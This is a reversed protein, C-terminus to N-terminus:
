KEAELLNLLKQAEPLERNQQALRTYYSCAKPNLDYGKELHALVLSLNEKVRPDGPAPRSGAPIQVRTFKTLPLQSNGPPWNHEKLFEEVKEFLVESIELENRAVLEKFARIKIEQHPKPILTLRLTKADPKALRPM